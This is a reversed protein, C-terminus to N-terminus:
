ASEEELRRLLTKGDLTTLAEYWQSEIVCVSKIAPTFEPNGYGRQKQPVLTWSYLRKM